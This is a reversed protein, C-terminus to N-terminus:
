IIKIETKELPVANEHPIVEKLNDITAAQQWAPELYGDIKVPETIIPCTIDYNKKTEDTETSSATGSLTTILLGAFLTGYALYRFSTRNTSYIESIREKAKESLSAIRRYWPKSQNVITELGVEDLSLPMTTTM